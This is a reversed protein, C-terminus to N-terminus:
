NSCTSIIKPMLQEIKAYHTKIKARIGSSEDYRSFLKDINTTNRQALGNIFTAYDSVMKLAETSIQGATVHIEEIALLKRLTRLDKRMNRLQDKLSSLEMRVGDNGRHAKKTATIENRISREEESLSEVENSLDKLEKSLFGNDTIGFSVSQMLFFLTLFVIGRKM